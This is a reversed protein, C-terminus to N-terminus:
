CQFLSSSFNTIHEKVPQLIDSIFRNKMSPNNRGLFKVAKRRDGSKQPTQTVPRISSSKNRILQELHLHAVENESSVLGVVNMVTGQSQQNGNKFTLVKLFSRLYSYLSVQERATQMLLLQHISLLHISWHKMRGRQM